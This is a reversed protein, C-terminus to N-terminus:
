RVDSADADIILIRMPCEELFNPDKTNVSQIFKVGDAIHM